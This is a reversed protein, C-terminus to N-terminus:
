RVDQSQERDVLTLKVKMDTKNKLILGMTWKVELCPRTAKSHAAAPNM